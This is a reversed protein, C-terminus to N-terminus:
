KKKEQEIAQRLEQNSVGAQKQEHKIYDRWAEVTGAQQTKIVLKALSIARPNM